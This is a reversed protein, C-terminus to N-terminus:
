RVGVNRNSIYAQDGTKIRMLRAGGPVDNIEQCYGEM